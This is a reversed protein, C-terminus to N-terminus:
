ILFKPPRLNGLPEVSASQAHLMLYRAGKVHIAFGYGSVNLVASICIENCCQDPKQDDGSKHSVSSHEEHHKHASSNAGHDHGEVDLDVNGSIAHHDGHMGSAAHSATPPSLVLACVFVVCALSKFRNSFTNKPIM